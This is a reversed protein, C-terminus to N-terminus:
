FIVMPKQGAGQYQQNIQLCLMRISGPLVPDYRAMNPALAMAMTTSAGAAKNNPESNSLCPNYTSM